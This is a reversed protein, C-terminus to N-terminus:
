TLTYDNALDPRPIIEDAFDVEPHTLSNLLKTFDWAAQLATMYPVRLHDPAQQAWQAMANISDPWYDYADDDGGLSRALDSVGTYFFYDMMHDSDATFTIRYFQDAGETDYDPEIITTTSFAYPGPKPLIGTEGYHFLTLEVSYTM